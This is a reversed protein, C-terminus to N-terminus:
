RPVRMFSAGAMLQDGILGLTPLIILCLAFFLGM